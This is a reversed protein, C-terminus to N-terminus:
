PSAKEPLPIGLQRFLIASDFTMWHDVIKGGVIRYTVFGPIDTERGTPPYGMFSGNNVGKHRSRIAVLDGEAIMEDVELAYLPFAAESAIIHDILTQDTIYKQLLEVPKPKGSVEELFKRIFEKNESASM